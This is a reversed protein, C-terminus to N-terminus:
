AGDVELGLVLLLVPDQLCQHYQSIQLASFKPLCVSVLGQDNNLLYYEHHRQSIYIDSLVFHDLAASIYIFIIGKQLSHLSTLSHLHLTTCRDQANSLVLHDAMHMPLKASPFPAELIRFLLSTPGWSQYSCKVPSLLRREQQSNSWSAKITWGM